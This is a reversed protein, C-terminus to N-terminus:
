RAALEALGAGVNRVRAEVAPDKLRGAEDFAQRAFSLAFTKPAVSVGMKHLVMQLAIQSRLGGMAGPSASILAATKGAFPALGTADAEAPRSAWDLANKLLPSYGGNYEPTAILLAANEALHARFRHVSAPAGGEAELDGDYIPLDLERLNLQAVQAGADQAGRVCCDLLMQNFSGRRASGCLALIKRM